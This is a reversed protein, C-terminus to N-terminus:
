VEEVGCMVFLVEVVVFFLLLFPAVIILFFLEKLCVRM